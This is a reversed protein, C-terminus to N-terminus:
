QSAVGGVAETPSILRLPAAAVPLVARGAARRRLLALAGVVAADFGLWAALLVIVLTM